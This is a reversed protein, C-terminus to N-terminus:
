LRPAKPEPQASELEKISNTKMTKFFAILRSLINRHYSLAKIINPDRKYDYNEGAVAKAEDLASKILQAKKQAGVSFLKKGEAEFHELQKQITVLGDDTVWRRQLRENNYTQNQSLLIPFRKAAVEDFLHDISGTDNKSTFLIRSDQELEVNLFQHLNNLDEESVHKPNNKEWQDYKNAVFVYHGKFDPANAQIMELSKVSNLFSERNSLDFCIVFVDVSKFHLKMANEHARNIQEEAKQFRKNTSHFSTPPSIELINYTVPEGEVVERTLRQFDMRMTPQPNHMRTRLTTKGVGKDGIFMVKMQHAPM